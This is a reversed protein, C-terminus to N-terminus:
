KLLIHCGFQEFHKDATLADVLGLEKMLEFSYCDTLSWEKDRRSLYLAYANRYTAARFPHVIYNEAHSIQELLSLGIERRGLRAFGDAIEFVIPVSLHCRIREALLRDAWTKAMDHYEDQSNLLAILYSTDLFLQRM